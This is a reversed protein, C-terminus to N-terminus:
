RYNSNKAARGRHDIGGRVSKSSKGGRLYLSLRVNAARGGQGSDLTFRPLANHREFVIEECALRNGFTMRVLDTVLDRIGDEVGEDGIVHLEAMGVVAMGVRAQTALRQGRGVLDYDGAFTAGGLRVHLLVATLGDDVALGDALDSAVHHALDAVVLVAEAEM